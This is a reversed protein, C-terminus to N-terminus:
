SNILLGPIIKYQVGVVRISDVLYDAFRIDMSKINPLSLSLIVQLSLRDIIM